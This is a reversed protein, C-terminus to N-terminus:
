RADRVCLQLRIRRRAGHIRVRRLVSSRLRLRSRCRRVFAHDSPGSSQGCSQWRSCLDRTGIIAGVGLATLSIPGLTRKLRHSGEMDAVMSNLSKTRFLQNAM